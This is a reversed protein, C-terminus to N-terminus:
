ELALRRPMLVLMLLPIATMKARSNQGDQQGAVFL